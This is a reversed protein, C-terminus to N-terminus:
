STVKDKYRTVVATIYNKVELEFETDTGKYDVLWDPTSEHWILAHGHVRLGKTISYNVIEDAKSWNYIGKTSLIVDMKMQYEATISEFEREILQTYNSIALKPTSTAVGVFFTTTKNKLTSIIPPIVVTDDNPVSKKCGVLTLTAFLFIHVLLKFKINNM